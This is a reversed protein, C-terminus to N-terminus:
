VNAEQRLVWGGEAYFGGFIELVYARIVPRGIAHHGPLAPLMQTFDLM